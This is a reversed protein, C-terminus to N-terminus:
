SLDTKNGIIKAGSTERDGGEQMVTPQVFPKTCIPCASQRQVVNGALCSPDKRVRKQSKVRHIATSKFHYKHSPLVHRRSM